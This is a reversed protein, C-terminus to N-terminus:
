LHGDLARRDDRDEHEHEGNSDGGGGRAPRRRGARLGALLIEDLVAIAAPCNLVSEESSRFAPRAPVSSPLPGYVTKAGVSAAKALTGFAVSAESAFFLAFSRATRRYWTTLPFTVAACAIFSWEALVSSPLGTEIRTLPPLTITPPAVTTLAFTVAEFPTMWTISLTSTGYALGSTSQRDRARVTAPRSPRRRRPTRTRRRRRSGSYHEGSSTEISLLPAVTVGPTARLAIRDGRCAHELRRQRRQAYGSADEAIFVEEAGVERALSLTEAAVDGSRLVLRAGRETLSADLDHLADLLFAVRNSRAFASGLIAEDFVFLPVVRDAGQAATSLALNDHVRLDRTFLVIATRVV